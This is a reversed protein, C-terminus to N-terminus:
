GRNVEFRRTSTAQSGDPDTVAIRLEYTGRRAVQGLVLPFSDPGEGLIDAMERGHPETWAIEPESEPQAAQAASREPLAVAFALLPLAAPHVHQVRM